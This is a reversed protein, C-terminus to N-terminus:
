SQDVWSESFHLRVLFICLVYYPIFILEEILPIVLVEFCNSLTTQIFFIPRTWSHHSHSIFNLSRVDTSPLGLVLWWYFGLWIMRALANKKRNLFDHLDYYRDLDLSALENTGYFLEINLTVLLNIWIFSFFRIDKRKDNYLICLSFFFCSMLNCHVTHISFDVFFMERLPTFHTIYQICQIQHGHALQFVGFFCFRFLLLFCM